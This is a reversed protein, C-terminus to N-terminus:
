YALGINFVQVSRWTITKSFVALGSSVVIEGKLFKHFFLEELYISSRGNSCTVTKM